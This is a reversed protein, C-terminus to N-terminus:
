NVSESIVKSNMMNNKVIETSPRFFDSQSESRRQTLESQNM